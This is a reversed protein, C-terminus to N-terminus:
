PPYSKDEGTGRFIPTAATLSMMIPALTAPQDYLYWSENVDSAQFTVQLCCCGMGFAMCDMEIAEAAASQSVQMGDTGISM